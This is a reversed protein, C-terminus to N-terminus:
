DLPLNAPALLRMANGGPKLAPLNAPACQFTASAVLRRVRVSKGRLEIKSVYRYLAMQRGGPSRFLGPMPVRAQGRHPGRLVGEERWFQRAPVRETHLGYVKLESSSQIACDLDLWADVLVYPSRMEVVVSGPRRPSVLGLGESSSAANEYCLVVDRFAESRFDVPLQVTGNAYAPPKGKERDAFFAYYFKGENGWHYDVREKPRLHWQMRHHGYLRPLREISDLVRPDDAKPSLDLAHKSQGYLLLMEDRNGLPHHTRAVLDLDAVCQAVSAVTQADRALYFVSQDADFAHWAGDYFVEPAQHGLEERDRKAGLSVNRTLLGAYACLTRFVLSADDCQAYGYVCFLRLPDHPEAWADPPYWHYRHRTVLQWIALAKERDSLTAPVAEKVLDPVSSFNPQGHGILWLGEIPDAGTNAISLSVMKLKEHRPADVTLPTSVLGAPAPTASVAKLEAVSLPVDSAGRKSGDCGIFAALLAFRWLSGNALSWFPRM